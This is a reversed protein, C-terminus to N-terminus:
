EHLGPFDGATAHVTGCLVFVHMICAGLVHEASSNSCRHMRPEEVEFRDLHCFHAQKFLSTEQQGVSRM